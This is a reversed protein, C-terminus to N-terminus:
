QNCLKNARRDQSKNEAKSKSIFSKELLEQAIEFITKNEICALMKLNKHIEESIVIQRRHNHSPSNNM